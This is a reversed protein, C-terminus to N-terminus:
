YIVILHSILYIFNVESADSVLTTSTFTRTTTSTSASNNTTISSATESSSLLGNTGREMGVAEETNKRYVPNDFNINHLTKYWFKRYVAVGLQFLIDSEIVHKSSTDRSVGHSVRGIM